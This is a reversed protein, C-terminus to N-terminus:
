DRGFTLEANVNNRNDFTVTVKARHINIASSSDYIGRLLDILLTYPIASIDATVEDQRGTKPNVSPSLRKIHRDAGLRRAISEIDDTISTKPSDGKMDAPLRASQRIYQESLDIAKKYDLRASRIKRDLTESKELAPMIISGIFVWSGLLTAIVILVSKRGTENPLIM